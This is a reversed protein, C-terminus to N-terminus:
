AYKGPNAIADALEAKTKIKEIQIQDITDRTQISYIRVANRQTRRWARDEAQGNRHPNWSRDTFIVHHARDLTITKGAAAITGVFIRARGSQFCKVLETRNSTVGGHIKVVTIGNARCEEEVLDAMGRFHTFVIFPEDEHTTILNMVADLKPAPKSLVIRPLDWDIWAESEDASEDYDEDGVDWVPELTALAMQQLRLSLTMVDPSMLVFQGDEVDGIRTMAKKKMQEYQRRQKPAMDVMIPPQVHIKEPMDDVVDTLLRRIYFPELVKHLKRTNKVGTTITYGTLKVKREGTAPDIYHDHRVAEESDVYEHFWRWYSSFQRPYLWNLLSWIDDPKDDAPTGTCGTKWDSKIRKFLKTRIAKPNKILHFEDAIIHMWRIPHPTAFLSAKMLRIADYHMIYYSYEPVRRRFLDERLEGLALEFTARNKPDIVLIDAEPVGMAKLHFDWVDLGIKESVILTPGNKAEPHDQRIRFDREIATVTKGVGMSDGIFASSVERFKEVAFLQDSAPKILPM